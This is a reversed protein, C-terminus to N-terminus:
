LDREVWVERERERERERANHKGADTIYCIYYLRATAVDNFSIM